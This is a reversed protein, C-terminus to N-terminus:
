RCTAAGRDGVQVGGHELGRVGADGEDGDGGVTGGPERPVSALWVVSWTPMKPGRMGVTSTPCLPYDTVCSDDKGSQFSLQTM